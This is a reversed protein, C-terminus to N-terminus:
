VHIAHTSGKELLVAGNIGPVSSSSTPAPLNCKRFPYPIFLGLLMLPMTFVDVPEGRLSTQLFASLFIAGVSYRWNWSTKRVAALAGMALCGLVIPLGLAKGIGLIMKLIERTMGLPGGERSIAWEEDTLGLWILVASWFGVALCAAMWTTSRRFLALLAKV